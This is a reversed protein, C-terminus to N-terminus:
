CWGYSRATTRGLTGLRSSRGRLRAFARSGLDVFRLDIIKINKEKVFKILEKPTM